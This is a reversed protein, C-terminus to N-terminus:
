RRRGPGGARFTSRMAERQGVGAFVRQLPSLREEQEDGFEGFELHKRVSKPAEVKPLTQDVAALICTAAAYDHGSLRPSGNPGNTVSMIDDWATADLDEWEGERIYDRLVDIMFVRSGSMGPATIWGWRGDDIDTWSWSKGSIFRHAIWVFDPALDVFKSLTAAGMSNREPAIIASYFVALKAIEEGFLSADISGAWTACLSKKSAMGPVILRDLIRCVSLDGGEVGEAVDAGGCFRYRYHERRDTPPYNWIKLPGGKEPVFLVKLEGRNVCQGSANLRPAYGREWRLGGVFRPPQCRHFSVSCRDQDWAHTGSIKRFAEDVNSPYYQRFDEVSGLFQRAITDRRWAIQGDALRHAEKLAEEEDDLDTIPESILTYEEVWYWPAFFFKYGQRGERAAMCLDYFYQGRGTRGNATSEVIVVSQPNKPITPLVAGMTLAADTWESLETVHLFQITYASGAFGVGVQANISSRLPYSFLLEKRNSYKTPPKELDPMCEYFLEHMRWIRNLVDGDSTLVLGHVNENRACREFMRTAAWTSARAQRSKLVAIHTGNETQDAISTDLLDDLLVQILTPRFYILEGGKTQIKLRSVIWDPTSMLVGAGAVIPPRSRARERILAAGASTITGTM